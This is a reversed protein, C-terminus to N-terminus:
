MWWIFRTFEWLPKAMIVAGYIDDRNNNNNNNVAVRIGSVAPFFWLFTINGARVNTKQDVHWYPTTTPLFTGANVIIRRQKQRQTQPHYRISRLIGSMSGNSPSRVSGSPSRRFSIHLAEPLGRGTSYQYRWPRGRAPSGERWELYRGPKHAHSAM